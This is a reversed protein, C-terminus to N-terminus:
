EEEVPALASYPVVESDSIAACDVKIDHKSYDYEAPYGTCAKKATCAAEPVYPMPPCDLCQCLNFAYVMTHEGSHCIDAVFEEIDSTEFHGFQGYHLWMYSSKDWGGTYDGGGTCPPQPRPECPHCCPPDQFDLDLHSTCRVAADSGDAARHMTNVSTAGEGTVDQDAEGQFNQDDRRLHNDWSADFDVEPCITNCYKYKNERYVNICDATGCNAILEDKTPSALLVDVYCEIKETASWDIKRDKELCEKTERTHWYQLECQGWCRNYNDECNLFHCTEYKCNTTECEAQKCDCEADVEVYAHYAATCKHHLSMWETYANEFKTVQMMLWDGFYGDVEMGAITGSCLGGCNWTTHSLLCCKKEAKPCEYEFDKMFDDLARCATIHEKYKILLGDRCEKHASGDCYQPCSEAGIKKQTECDSFCLIQKHLEVQDFCHAEKLAGQIDGILADKIMQLASKVDPDIVPGVTGESITEEVLNQLLSSMQTVNRSGVADLLHDVGTELTTQVKLSLLTASDDVAVVCPLAALVKM